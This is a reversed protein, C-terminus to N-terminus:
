WRNRHIKEPKWKDKPQDDGAPYGIPVACLPKVNEPLSLKEIVPAMRETPYLATWVAGLGMAEAALLLNETAASCDEYWFINDVEEPEADPKGFPKRVTKTDGCVVVVVAASTFMESQFGEGWIEQKVADDDIVVFHWPQINIASPAAMAAKLLTEIQEETLKQDTFSRVSKRNMITNIAAETADQAKNGNCCGALLM